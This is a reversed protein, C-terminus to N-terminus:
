PAPEQFQEDDMFLYRLADVLGALVAVPTLLYFLMLYVLGWGIQGRYFRHAGLWGLFLALVIAIKRRVGPAAPKDGHNRLVWLWVPVTLVLALVVKATHTTVYDRVVHWVDSFNYIVIGTVHAVWAFVQQALTEGFTLALLIALFLAVALVIKQVM